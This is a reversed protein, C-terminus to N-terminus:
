KKDEFKTKIEEYCKQAALQREKDKFKTALNWTESFVGKLMNFNVSDKMLKINADYKAIYQEAERDAAGIVDVAKYLVDYWDKRLAELPETFGEASLWALAWEDNVGRSEMLEQLSELDKADIIMTTGYTEKDIPPPADKEYLSNGFKNGFSRLCRKIADTVAEKSALEIASHLGSPTDGAVGDGFGTDEHTCEGVTLRLTCLYAISVMPKEKDDSKFAPKIYSVKSVERLTLIETTWGDFGFIRNAENIAHFGAIYSLTGSGYAERTKVDEKLLPEKLLNTQSDTLPVM